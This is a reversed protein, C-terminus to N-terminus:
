PKESAFTSYQLFYKRRQRSKKAGGATIQRGGWPHLALLFLHPLAGL